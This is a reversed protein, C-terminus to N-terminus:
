KRCAIVLKDDNITYNDASFEIEYDSRGQTYSLKDSDVKVDQLEMGSIKPIDIVLETNKVPLNSKENEGSVRVLTQVIKGKGEEVDYDINKILSSEIKTSTTERWSLNLNIEKEIKHEVAENDVYVGSFLIKNTANLYNSSLVDDRRFEIPISILQTDNQSIGKIRIENNKIKIESDEKVVFNLNDGLKLVGSKLYGKQTLAIEFNMKLSSEKTDCILSDANDTNESSFYGKVSVADEFNEVALVVNGAIPLLEILILLIVLWVAVIKKM